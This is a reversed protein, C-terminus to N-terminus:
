TTSALMRTTSSEQLYITTSLQTGTKTLLEGFAYYWYADTLNGLSDTLNRTSGLGDYHYYSVVGARNMSILDDGYTYSAITAGIGDTELVVQAFGTNNSADVLYNTTGASDTKSIRNGDGDYTYSTAQGNITATTLRNEYDYEYPTIQAIETKSLTNGNNDYTYTTGNETLLRDNADYTYTTIVGDKTKTLRNGVPDYTYSINYPNIGTRVEKTLRYLTDYTYDVTAGDVETVKIRNGAPGLTYIYSSIIQGSVKRNTLNTLRNLSNYTYETTTGNPYTVSARNGVDDYTYMTIGGDPGTVTELRNLADYTYNTTGAPTTVSTRNGAADYTYSISRGDPDTQQVLRDRLDYEYSTLGRSDTVTQRQGTPTYTFSVQSGDPYTKSKLHNCCPYYDYVITNGNFDTKSIMNGNPDYQYTESQGLPLTKETMRGLRDYEFSTTHNNADTQTLRNGPEDYTYSTVLNGPLIVSVPRGQEDYEYHTAVQAQDSSTIKRGLADYETTSQTEEPYIIRVQRNLADYRYETTNNNADTMSIMNGAADYTYTTRNGLADIVVTRRGAPDYEYYTIYGNADTASIIQGAQDYESTTFSGDAYTTEILRNLADYEYSTANGNRDTLSIRNGNADYTYEEYTNDPYITKKLQGMLDYEYQTINGNKDQTAIQKGIENYTTETYNNYTDTTRVPRNQKDYANTTVIQEEQQNVTRYTTSTIQNGNEDYTYTNRVVSGQDRVVTEVLYGYQDYSNEARTGLPDVSASMNGSDDYEYTTVNGLADTTKTLNGKLDYENTTTHGLPDTATLVQGYANYAYRTISGLPDTTSAMNGQGDYTYYTSYGLPNTERTKNKNADYEYTTTYGPADTTSVVMGDDNYEYITPNGNRDTVIEQNTDLRHQYTIRNGYADTHAILRGTVPDYENIVPTIGRPDKISAINHGTYSYTTTVTTAADILRTVGILDGDPDYTYEIVVDGAPDIIQTIRDESDRVFTIGKGSSHNIGNSVFTLQNSNKDTITTLKGTQSSGEQVINYVTGDATTLRYRNPNYLDFTLFDYYEGEYYLDGSYDLQQLRDYVGSASTYGPRCLYPYFFYPFSPSFSFATRRGDPLTLFVNHANDEVLDVSSVDMKWGYGFDGEHDKQLTDFTRSVTIPIGMVPIAIDQETIKFNGVKLEGILQVDVSSTRYQGAKDYAILTITYFGNELLTTDWLPLRENDLPSTSEAIQVPSAGSSQYMLRWSDFDIPVVDTATGTIEILGTVQQSNVPSTIQCIPPEDVAQVYIDISASGDETTITAVYLGDPVINGQEDRGDWTVSIYTGEGTWSNVISSQRNVITLTWTGPTALTATITIEDQYGDGNPSFSELNTKLDSIPNSVTVEIQATGINEAEDYARAEITHSDNIVRTTDFSYTIPPLTGTALLEQDIYLELKTVGVDDDATASITNTTLRSAYAVGKFLDSWLWSGSSSDFTLFM